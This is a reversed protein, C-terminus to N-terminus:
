VRGLYVRRPGAPLRCGLSVALIAAAAADDKARMRRGGEVGKARKANGAPDSVTRAEGMASTLVLSPVPVVRGEACARRFARVDEAGDKSGQGRLALAAVPCGAGTLADRLEAERWRDSAIAVPAGFRQVAAAILAQVDVAHEGAQILERRRQGQVYLRGVGDRLGREALSPVHPFACLAELRGSGPWFASVASMAASTGLDVGWVPRDDRAANGEIRTWMDADLLFSQETDETGLNLRLANFSALMAPDVRAEAAERQIAALLDPM